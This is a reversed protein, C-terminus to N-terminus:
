ELIEKRLANRSARDVISFIQDIDDKQISRKHGHVKIFRCDTIMDILKYFEQYLQYNRILKNKKSQYNNRELRDRRGLLSIINQSDTYVKLKNESFDNENLAWLLTELELKVSSTNEFRKINVQTKLSETSLEDETVILYAGYGIKSKTNVSGDTFLMLGNM